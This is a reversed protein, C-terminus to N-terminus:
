GITDVLGNDSAFRILGALDHIGLKKMMRSRYTSVTSPSLHLTQSIQKNTKGGVILELIQLERESLLKLPNTHKGEERKLLYDDIMSDTLAQSLFRRGAAVEMIAEIVEGISADKLLYGKAGAQFAQYVHEKSAYMSLMIVRTQPSERSLQRAAEVGSIEPMQLDMIVIDPKLQNCLRIVTRGNEAQGVVMIQDDRELTVALSERLVQHDDALIVKIPM